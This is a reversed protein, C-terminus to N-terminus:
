ALTSHMERALSPIVAYCQVMGEEQILGVAADVAARVSGVDGTFSVYSKGGLGTACRVEILSIDAAKAAGDAAIICSAVSYTEIVGLANIEHVSTSCSLAPFVSSHVNPIIFRDILFEGAVDKGVEVSNQVSGVDGAIMVLYRGPCTSRAMILEVDSAKVMADGCEIGRAVSNLELLGIARYEM